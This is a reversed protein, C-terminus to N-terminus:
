QANGIEAQIQSATKIHLNLSRAVQENVVVEFERAYQAPPLVGREAFQLIVEAAQEAIQVPTSYVAALAGAKVYGASIGILPVRNRYTALLINRITGSNYIENDPLSLLVDSSLLIEQLVASMSAVSAVRREYLEIKKMRAQLRLEEIDAPENSYLVGISRTQPLLASILGVHRKFPQDLYIASVSGKRIAAGGQLLGAYGDKPLMVALVPSNVANLAVASAKIGATVRLDAAPATAGPMVMSLVVQSSALRQGLAQSFEQYAGGNESLEVNVRLPAAFARGGALSLMLLFVWILSQNIQAM